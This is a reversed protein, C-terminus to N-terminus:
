SILTKSGSAIVVRPDPGIEPALEAIARQEEGLREAIEADGIAQRPGLEQRKPPAKGALSDLDREGLADLREAEVSIIGLGEPRARALIRRALADIRHDGEVAGIGLRMRAHPAIERHALPAGFDIHLDCGDGLDALRM